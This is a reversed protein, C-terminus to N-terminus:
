HKHITPNNNVGINSILYWNVIQASGFPRNIQLITKPLAALGLGLVGASMRDMPNLFPNAAVKM